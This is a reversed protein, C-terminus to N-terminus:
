ERESRHKDKRSYKTKDRYVRTYPVPDLRVVMGFTLVGSKKKKRM